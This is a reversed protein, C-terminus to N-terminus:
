CLEVVRCLACMVCVERLPPAAVCCVVFVCLFCVVCCVCVIVCGCVERTYVSPGTREYHRDVRQQLEGM